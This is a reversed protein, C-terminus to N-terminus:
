QDTLKIYLTGQLFLKIFMAYCSFSIIIGIHVSFRAQLLPIEGNFAEVTGPIDKSNSAHNELQNILSLDTAAPSEVVDM